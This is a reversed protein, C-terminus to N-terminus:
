DRKILRVHDRYHLHLHGVSCRLGAPVWRLRAGRAEDGGPWGATGLSAPFTRVAETLSEQCVALITHCLAVVHRQEQDHQEGHHGAPRQENPLPRHGDNTAHQEHDQRHADPPLVTTNCPCRLMQM